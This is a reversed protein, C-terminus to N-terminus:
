LLLRGNIMLGIREKSEKARDGTIVWIFIRIKTIFFHITISGIEWPPSHKRREPL